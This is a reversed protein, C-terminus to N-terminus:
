VYFPSQPAASYHEAFEERSTWARIEEREDAYPHEDGDYAGVDPFGDFQGMKPDITVGLDGDYVYCHFEGNQMVADRVEANEHTEVYWFAFGNCTPFETSWDALREESVLDTQIDAEM